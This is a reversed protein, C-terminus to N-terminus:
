PFESFRDPFLHVLVHNSFIVLSETLLIRIYYESLCENLGTELPNTEVLSAAIKAIFIDKLLNLTDGKFLENNNRWEEVLSLTTHYWEGFLGLKQLSEVGFDCL